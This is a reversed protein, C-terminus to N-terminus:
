GADCYNESRKIKESNEPPQQQMADLNSHAQRRLNQVKTVEERSASRKGLLKALEDFGQAYDKCEQLNMPRSCEAEVMASAQPERVWQKGQLKNTYIAEGGRRYITINNALKESEIRELTSLMGICAAQHAEPTTMRGTGKDAKQGEYRQLIGQESFKPNVALVRADIKYGAARLSKMTNAVKDGDRM